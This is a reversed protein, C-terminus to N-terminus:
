CSSKSNTIFELLKLDDLNDIEINKWVPMDYGLTKKSIFGRNIIFDSIFSIYLSGDLCYTNIVDQRRKSTGKTKIPKLKGKIKEFQFNISYKQADLVSVLSRCKKNIMLRLANDIDSHNTLPSTPELLILIDFFYNKKELFNIAHKAVEFSSTNDKSINHPRKFFVKAGYKKALNNYYISDSSFVLKDILKSKKAANIPYFILEKNLIKKINKNKIGKSNKRAPVLCLIKLGKFM